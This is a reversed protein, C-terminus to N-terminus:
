ETGGVQREAIQALAGKCAAAAAEVNFPETWSASFIEEGGATALIGLETARESDKAPTLLIQIHVPQMFLRDKDVVLQFRLVYAGDNVPEHTGSFKPFIGANMLFDRVEIFLDSCLAWLEEARSAQQGKMKQEEQALLKLEEARIQRLRIVGIQQLLEAGDEAPGSFNEWKVLSLREEWSKVLCCMALRALWRECGNSEVIPPRLKVADYLCARPKDFGDFLPKDMIMDHLTAGIQYFTVARWADTTQIETRWVFERPSYRLSAVFEEGSLRAGAGEEPTSLVIGLDLLTLQSLDHSVVINAPKIDRHVLDKSELFQAAGALQRVLHPIAAKPIKGVLKDLSNGPVFEMILFLTQLGEDFGGDFVEVLNPHQKRGKLTLQLELREQEQGLGNQQIREPFFLKVAVRRGDKEGVYVIGDIGSGLVNILLWGQFVKDKLKRVDDM